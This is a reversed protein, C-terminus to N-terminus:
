AYDAFLMGALFTEIIAALGIYEAFASLFLCVVLALVFKNMSHYVERQAEICRRCADFFDYVKPIMWKCMTIIVVVFIVTQIIIGAINGISFEGSAAISNVIILVIM